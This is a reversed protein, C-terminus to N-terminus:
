FQVGGIERKFIRIDKYEVNAYEASKGDKEKRDGVYLIDESNAGIQQLIYEMASKSPKLEGNGIEESVFIGDYHIGISKAKEEAPYDSYIYIHKGEKSCSNIYNVVDAYACEQIIELPITLMWKEIAETVRQASLKLQKSVFMYLENMSCAKYEPLERLRRFVYISALEKWRNLHILYYKILRFLMRIRMKKQSYLTGDMDFIYVTKNKM